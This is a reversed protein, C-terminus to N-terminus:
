ESGDPGTSTRRTIRGLKSAILWTVALTLVAGFVLGGAGSCFNGSM